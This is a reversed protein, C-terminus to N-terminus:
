KGGRLAWAAHGPIAEYQTENRPVVSREARYDREAQQARGNMIGNAAGQLTQGWLLRGQATEPKVFDWLSGLWNSGPTTMSNANAGVAGLTDAGLGSTGNSWAASTAADAGTSAVPNAMQALSIPQAVAASAGQAAVEPAAWSAAGNAAADAAYGAMADTGGSAALGAAGEAAAAGGAIAEGAGVAGLTDAGLGAGTSWAASTAADAGIAAATGAEAGATTLGLSSGISSATGTLASLAASFPATGGALAASMVSGFTAGTAGMAGFAGIAAGGTFIVAAGILIAKFIPSKLIKKVANGITKFVKKIGKVLGSM